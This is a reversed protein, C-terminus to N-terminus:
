HGHDGSGQHQTPRAPGGPPGAAAPRGPLGPLGDSIGALFIILYVQQGAVAPQVGALPLPRWGGVDNATLLLGSRGPSCAAPNRTRSSPPWIGPAGTRRRLRRRRIPNDPQKPRAQHPDGHRTAPDRRSREPRRRDCPDRHPRPRFCDPPRPSSMASRLGRDRPRRESPGPRPSVPPICDHSTRVPSSSDDTRLQHPPVLPSCVRRDAFRHPVSRPKATSPTAPQARASIQRPPSDSRATLTPRHGRSSWEDLRAASTFRNPSKVATSPM